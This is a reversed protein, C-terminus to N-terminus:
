AVRQSRRLPEERRVGEVPPAASSTTRHEQPVRSFPCLPRSYPLYENPCAYAWTLGMTEGRPCLADRAALAVQMDHVGAQWPQLFQRNVKTHDADCAHGAPPAGSVLSPLRM